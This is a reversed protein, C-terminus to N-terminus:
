KQNNRQIFLHSLDWFGAFQFNFFVLVFRVKEINSDDLCLNELENLISVAKKYEEEQKMKDTTPSM